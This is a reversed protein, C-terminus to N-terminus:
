TFETRPKEAVIVRSCASSSDVSGATAKTSCFRVNVVISVWVGVGDHPRSRM